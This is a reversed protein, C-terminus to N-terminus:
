LRNIWFDGSNTVKENKGQKSVIIKMTNYTPDLGLVAMSGVRWDVLWGVM